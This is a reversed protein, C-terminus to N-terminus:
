LVDGRQCFTELEQCIIFGNAYSAAATAGVIAGNYQGGDGVGTDAADAVQYQTAGISWNEM